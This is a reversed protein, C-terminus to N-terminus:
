LLEFRWTVNSKVVRAPNGAAISNESIIGRTVIAGAAIVAGSGIHAGKLIMARQGIWVREGIVIDLAPNLREGSILDIISHMDSITVEVEAGFLSGNGIVIRGREHLQLRVYGNFGVHDGIEVVAGRDAYITLHGLNCHRGIRVSSGARIHFNLNAASCNAGVELTNGSGDFVVNGSLEADPALSLRSEQTYGQLRLPVFSAKQHAPFRIAAAETASM